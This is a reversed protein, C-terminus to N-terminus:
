DTCAILASASGLVTLGLAPPNQPRHYLASFFSNIFNVVHSGSGSNAVNMPVCCPRLTQISFIVRRPRIRPRTQLLKALYIARSKRRRSRIKSLGRFVSQYQTYICFNPNKFIYVCRKERFPICLRLPARKMM